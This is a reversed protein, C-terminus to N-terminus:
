AFMHEARAATVDAGSDRLVKAIDRLEEWPLRKCKACIVAHKLAITALSARWRPKVHECLLRTASSSRAVLHTVVAGREILIRVVATSSAALTFYNSALELPTRLAAKDTNGPAFKCPGSADDNTFRDRDIYEPFADCLMNVVGAHGNFCAEHLATALGGDVDGEFNTMAVGADLSATVRAPLGFRAAWFLTEEPEQLRRSILIFSAECGRAAGTAAWFLPTDTSPFCQFCNKHDASVRELVETAELVLGCALLACLAAPEEEGPHAEYLERAFDVHNGTAAVHFSETLSGSRDLLVKLIGVPLHEAYNTLCGFGDDDDAPMVELVHERALDDLSNGCAFLFLSSPGATPHTRIVASLEDCTTRFFPLNNCDISGEFADELSAGLKLLTLACSDRILNEDARVKPDYWLTHTTDPVLAVYLTDNLINLINIHNRPIIDVLWRFRPEDHKVAWGLLSRCWKWRPSKGRESVSACALRSWLQEDARLARSVSAAPLVLTSPHGSSVVLELILALRAEEASIM